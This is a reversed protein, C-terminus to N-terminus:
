TLVDVLMKWVPAFIEEVRKGPNPLPWQYIQGVSCVIGLFFIVTFVALEKWMKRKVLPPVEIVIVIVFVFILAYIM